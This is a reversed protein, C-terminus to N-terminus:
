KLPGSRDAGFKLNIGVKVTDVDRIDHSFRATGGGGVNATHTITDSVDFHLYEVKFSVLSNVAYEVGGGWVAGDLNAGRSTGSVLTAGAPDTDSFSVNAHMWGWGAKGYILLSDTALVGVRGTVTAYRDFDVSAVSDQPTRVGVYAPFQSEGSIGSLGGEGEIGLVVKQLQVNYGVQVGFMGGEGGDYKFGAGNYPTLENLRNDSAQWGWGAHAGLYFGSWSRDGAQAVSAAGLTAVIAAGAAARTITGWAGSLTKM